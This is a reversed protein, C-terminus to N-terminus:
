CHAHSLNHWAEPNIECQVKHNMEFCLAPYYVEGFDRLYSVAASLVNIEKTFYM